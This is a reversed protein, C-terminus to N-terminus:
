GPAWNFAPRIRVWLLIFKPGTKPGKQPGKPDWEPSRKPSRKPGMGPGTKPGNRAGNQDGNPPWKPGRKPGMRTGTKSGRQGGNEDGKPDRKPGRKTGTKTGNQDGNQAMRPDARFRRHGSFAVSSCGVPWPPQWEWIMGNTFSLERSKREASDVTRVTKPLLTLTKSNQLPITHFHSRGLRATSSHGSGLACLGPISGNGYWM